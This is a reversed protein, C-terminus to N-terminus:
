GITVTDTVDDNFVLGSVTYTGSLTIIIKGASYSVGSVMSGIVNSYAPTSHIRFSAVPATTGSSFGVLMALRTKDGYSKGSKPTLTITTGRGNIEKLGQPLSKIEDHIIKYMPYDM